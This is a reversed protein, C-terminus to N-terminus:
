GDVAAYRTHASRTKARGSGQRVHVLEPWRRGRGWLRGEPFHKTWRRGGPSAQRDKKQGLLFLCSLLIRLSCRSSSGPSRRPPTWHFRQRRDQLVKVERFYGQDPRGT